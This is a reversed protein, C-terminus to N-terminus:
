ATVSRRLLALGSLAFALLALTSGTEPVSAPGSPIQRLQFGNIYGVEEWSFSINQTASDATFSGLVYEGLGGVAHDDNSYLTVSTTGTTLKNDYSFQDSSQNVWLQFQYQVGAILGSMILNLTGSVGVVHSMLLAQYQATLTSFPASSSGSDVNSAFTGGSSALTFNGVTGNGGPAAFSQFPVGNVTTSPVGVGGVNFAGVLNGNTSVDANGSIQAPVGWAIDAAGASHLFLASLGAVAVVVVAFRKKMTEPFPPPLGAERSAQADSSQPKQFLLWLGHGTSIGYLIWAGSSGASGM